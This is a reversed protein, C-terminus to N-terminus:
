IKKEEGRRLRRGKRGGGGGGGGERGLATALAPPDRPESSGGLISLPGCFPGNSHVSIDVVTAQFM